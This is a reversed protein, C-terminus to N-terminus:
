KVRKGKKEEEQRMKGEDRGREVEVLAAEENRLAIPVRNVEVEFTNKALTHKLLKIKEGKTIGMSFLRTKLPEKAYIKKIVAEDGMKLENLRM